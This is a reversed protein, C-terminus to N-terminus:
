AKPIIHALLIPWLIIILVFYAIFSGATGKIKRGVKVLELRGLSFSFGDAIFFPLVALLLGIGFYVILFEM